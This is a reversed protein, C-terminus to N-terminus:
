DVDRVVAHPEFPEEAGHDKDHPLSRVPPQRDRSTATEALLPNSEPTSLEHKFYRRGLTRRAGGIGM